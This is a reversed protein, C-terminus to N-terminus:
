GLERSLGSPAELDAPAEFDEDGAGIEETDEPAEVDEMDSEFNGLDPGGASFSSPGPGGSFGHGGPRGSDDDGQALEGNEEAEEIIELYDSGIWEKILANRLEPTGGVDIGLGEFSELIKALTDMQTQKTECRQNDEETNISTFVIKFDPLERLVSDPRTFSLYKLCLDKMGEALISQIGKITRAYRIDM